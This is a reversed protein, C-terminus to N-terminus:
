VKFETQVAEQQQRSKLNYVGRKVRYFIDPRRTIASPILNNISVKADSSFGQQKVGEIIENVSLPGESENLVKEIYAALSNKRPPGAKTRKRRRKKTTVNKLRNLVAEEVSLEFKLKNIKREVLEIETEISM